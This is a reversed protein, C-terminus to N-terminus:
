PLVDCGVEIYAHNCVEFLYDPDLRAIRPVLCYADVQGRLRDMVEGRERGQRLMGISLSILYQDAERPIVHNLDTKSLHADLAKGLEHKEVDNVNHTTTWQYIIGLVEWNSSVQDLVSQIDTEEFARGLNVRM